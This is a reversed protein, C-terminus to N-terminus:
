FDRSILPCLPMNWQLFPYIYLNKQQQKNLNRQKRVPMNNVYIENSTNVLPCQLCNTAKSQQNELLINDTCILKNKVVMNGISPNKKIAVVIKTNGILTQIDSASDKLIKRFDNLGDFFHVSFTITENVIQDIETDMHEVAKNKIELLEEKLYGSKVFDDILKSMEKEKWEKESNRELTSIM